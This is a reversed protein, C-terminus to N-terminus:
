SVPITIQCIAGNPPGPSHQQKRNSLGHAAFGQLFVNKLEGLGAFPCRLAQEHELMGARSIFRQTPWTHSVCLLIFRRWFVNRRPYPAAQWSQGCQTKSDQHNKDNQGVELQRCCQAESPKRESSHRPLDSGLVVKGDPPGGRSQIVGGQNWNDKHMSWQNKSSVEQPRVEERLLLAEMERM